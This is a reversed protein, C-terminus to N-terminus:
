PRERDDPRRTKRDVPELLQKIYYGKSVGQDSNLGIRDIPVATTLKGIHDTQILRKERTTSCNRKCVVKTQTVREIPNRVALRFYTSKKIIGVMEYELRLNFYLIMFCLQSSNEIIKSFRVCKKWHSTWLKRIFSTGSYFSGITIKRALIVYNEIKESMVNNCYRLMYWLLKNRASQSACLSQFCREQRNIIIIVTTMCIEHTCTLFSNIRGSRHNSFCWMHKSHTQCKKEMILIETQISFTGKNHCDDSM